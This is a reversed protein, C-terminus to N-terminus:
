SPKTAVADEIPVDETPRARLAEYRATLENIREATKDADRRAALVARARAGLAADSEDREQYMQEIAVTVQHAQDSKLKKLAEIENFLTQEEPTRKRRTTGAM